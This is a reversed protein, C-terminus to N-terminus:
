IDLHGWAWSCVVDSYFAITRRQCDQVALLEVDFVEFQKASFFTSPGVKLLHLPSTLFPTGHHNIIPQYNIIVLSTSNTSRSIINVVCYTEFVYLRLSVKILFIRLSVKIPPVGACKWITKPPSLIRTKIDVIEEQKNLSVHWVPKPLKWMM